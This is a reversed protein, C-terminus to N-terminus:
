SLSLAVARRVEGVLNEDAISGLRIVTLADGVSVLEGSSDEFSIAYRKSNASVYLDFIESHESGDLNRLVLPVDERFSLGVGFEDSFIGRVIEEREENTYSLSVSVSTKKTVSNREDLLWVDYSGSPLSMYRSAQSCWTCLQINRDHINSSELEEFAFDALLDQSSVYSQKYLASIESTSLVRNYFRVEDMSGKFRPKYGGSGSIYSLQINSLLQNVSTGNDCSSQGYSLAEGLNQGNVYLYAKSNEFVFVIHYWEDAEFAFDSWKIENCNTLTEIYFSSGSNKMLIHSYSSSSSTKTFLYAGGSASSQAPRMWFSLTSADKSLTIPSSFQYFDSEGDLAAASGLAGQVLHYSDEEHDSYEDNFSYSAALSQAKVPYPANMESRVDDLSLSDKFFRLEDIAGDFYWNGSRSALTVPASGSGSTADSSQGVLLGDLYTKVTGGEYSIAVHYWRGVEYNEKLIIKNVVSADLAVSSFIIKSGQNASTRYLQYEYNGDSGKAFIMQREEPDPGPADSDIRLWLTMAYTGSFTSPSFKGNNSILADSEATANFLLAKGFKGDIKNAGRIQLSSFSHGGISADIRSPYTTMGSDFIYAFLNANQSGSNVYLKGKDYWSSATSPDYLFLEQVQSASLASSFYRLDDVAGDFHTAKWGRGLNNLSLSGISQSGLSTGDLYATLSGSSDKSLVLHHWMSLDFSAPFSFDYTSDTRIRLLSSQIEVFYADDTDSSSEKFLGGKGKFWLSVAKNNSLSLSNVPFSLFSTKNDFYLANHFKGKALVPANGLYGFHFGDTSTSYSSVRFRLKTISKYWDSAAVGGEDLPQNAAKLDFTILYWESAIERMTIFTNSSGLYLHHTVWKGESSYYLYFSVEPRDSKYIFSISDESSFDRTGGFDFDIWSNTTTGKLSLIKKGLFSSDKVEVSSFAPDFSWYGASYVPNASTGDQFDDFVLAHGAADSSGIKDLTDSDFPFEALLSSDSSIAFSASFLTLFSICILIIKKIITM